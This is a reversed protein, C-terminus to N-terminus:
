ASNHTDNQMRHVLRCQALTIYNAATENWDTLLNKKFLISFLVQWGWPHWSLIYFFFVGRSNHQNNNNNNDNSRRVIRNSAAIILVLIAIFSPVTVCWLRFSSSAPAISCRSGISNRKWLLSSLLNRNNKNNSRKVQWWSTESLLSFSSDPRSYKVLRFPGLFSVRAWGWGWRRRGRRRSACAVQENLNHLIIRNSRCTCRGASGAMSWM